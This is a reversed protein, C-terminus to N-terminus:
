QKKMDLVNVLKEAMMCEEQQKGHTTRRKTSSFAHTISTYQTDSKLDTADNHTAGPSHNNSQLSYGMGFCRVPDDSDRSRLEFDVV